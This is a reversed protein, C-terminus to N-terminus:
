SPFHKLVLEGGKFKLGHIRESMSIMEADSLIIKGSLFDLLKLGEEGAIKFSQSVQRLSDLQPSKQILSNILDELEAWKKFHNELKQLDEPNQNAIYNKVANSFKRSEVPDAICADAWQNLPSLMSYLTGKPNRHYFRYPAMLDNFYLLDSFDQQNETYRRIIKHRNSIHESGNLELHSSIKDLRQFLNEGDLKNRESWFVEAIAASRPWIRSDVSNQDVLESWMTAEGGFILKKAKENDILSQPVPDMFYHYSTSQMLDIYFGHSRIVRLDNDISKIIGDEGRWSHIVPNSDILDKHLIEDWGMMIKGADVLSKNLRSNFWAQLEHNDFGKKEKFAIIEPDRDWHKGENEDGGIHFYKDPFLLAMENFLIHIFNYTKEKTPDLTPDFIGAHREITYNANNESALKPYATLIATAHGPVDFEPIVRIGLDDAYKVIEHIQEKTYFKGDSAKETLLPFSDSEIRWGQDDSLHWHFVNMKMTHMLDLQRKVAAVPMFHRSVDLMLGRWPFRPADFIEVSKFFYGKENSETLQLLTQLAYMAGIDTKAKIQIKDNTIKLSYSEDIGLEVPAKEEAIIEFNASDDDSWDRLNYFIGTKKSLVNYFRDVAKILRESGEIRPKLKSNIIFEGPGAVVEKPLPMVQHDMQQANIKVTTFIM